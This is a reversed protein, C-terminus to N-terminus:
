EPSHLEGAGVFGGSSSGDGYKISWTEGPMNMWNPSTNNNFLTQGNVQGAPLYTSFVWLDASGTDFDLHVLQNDITVPEIYADDFQDNPVAPVSGTNVAAAKVAAMLMDPVKINYKKYMNYTMHMGSHRGKPNKVQHVRGTIADASASLALLVLISTPSSFLM